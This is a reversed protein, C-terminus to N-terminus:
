LIRLPKDKDYIFKWILEKGNASIETDTSVKYQPSDLSAFLSKTNMDYYGLSPKNNKEPNTNIAFGIIDKYEKIIPKSLDKGIPDIVSSLESSPTKYVLQTDTGDYYPSNVNSNWWIYDLKWNSFYPVFTAPSKKGDEIVKKSDIRGEETYKPSSSAGLYGVLPQGQTDDNVKFVTRLKINLFVRYKTFNASDTQPNESFYEKPIDIDDLSILSYDFVGYGVPFAGACKEKKYNISPYALKEDSIHYDKSFIEGRITNNLDNEPDGYPMFIRSYSYITSNQMNRCKFTKKHEKTLPVNYTALVNEFQNPSVMQKKVVEISEIGVESGMIASNHIHTYLTKTKADYFTYFDNSPTYGKSNFFNHAYYVRNIHEGFLPISNFERVKGTKTNTFILEAYPEVLPKMAYPFAVTFYPTEKDKSSNLPDTSYIDRRTTVKPYVSKGLLIKNDGRTYSIHEERTSDPKVSYLTAKTLEYDLSLNKIMVFPYGLMYGSSFKSSLPTKTLPNERLDVSFSGPAPKNISNYSVSSRPLLWNYFPNCLSSINICYMLTSDGLVYEISFIDGFLEHSKQIDELLKNDQQIADLIIKRLEAWIRKPIGIYYSFSNIKNEVVPVNKLTVRGKALDESSLEKLFFANKYFPNEYGFLFDKFPNSTSSSIYLNKTNEEAYGQQYFMKYNREASKGPFMSFYMYINFSESDSVYNDPNEFLKEASVVASNHKLSYLRSFYEKYFFYDKFGVGSQSIDRLTDNTLCLMCGSMDQKLMEYLKSYVKAIVDQLGPYYDAYRRPYTINKKFAEKIGEENPVTKLFVKIKNIESSFSITIDKLPKPTDKTGYAPLKRVIGQSNPKDKFYQSIDVIYQKNQSLDRMFFYVQCNNQISTPDIVFEFDRLLFDKSGQMFRRMFYNGDERPNLSVIVSDNVRCHIPQINWDKTINLLNTLPMMASAWTPNNRMYTYGDAVLTMSDRHTYIFGFVQPNEILMRFDSEGQIAPLASAIIDSGLITVVTTKDAKPKVYTPVVGRIEVEPDSEKQYNTTMLM